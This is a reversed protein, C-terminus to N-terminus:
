EARCSTRPRCEGTRSPRRRRRSTGARRRPANTPRARSEARSSAADRRPSERVEREGGVRVIVVQTSSTITPPLICTSGRLSRRASPAPVRRSARDRCARRTDRATGAARRSIRVILIRKARAPRREIGFLDHASGCSARIGRMGNQGSARRACAISAGRPAASDCQRRRERGEDARPAPARRMSRAGTSPRSRDRAESDAADGVRRAEGLIARRDRPM